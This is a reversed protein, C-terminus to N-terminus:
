MYGKAYRGKNGEPSTEFLCNWTITCLLGLSIKIYSSGLGCHAGDRPIVECISGGNYLIIQSFENRKGPVTTARFDPGPGRLKCLM